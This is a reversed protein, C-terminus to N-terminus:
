DFTNNNNYCYKKENCFLFVYLGISHAPLLAAAPNVSLPHYSYSLAPLLAFWATYPTQIQHLADEPLQYM